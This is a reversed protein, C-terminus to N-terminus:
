TSVLLKKRTQKGNPHQLPRGFAIPLYASAATTVMVSVLCTRSRRTLKAMHIAYFDFMWFGVLPIWTSSGLMCANYGRSDGTLPRDFSWKSGPRGAVGRPHPSLDSM